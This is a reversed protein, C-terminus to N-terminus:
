GLTALARRTLGVYYTLDAPSPMLERAACGSLRIFAVVIVGAALLYAVSLGAAAGALGLTLGGIAQLAVATLAFLWAIAALLGRRGIRLLHSAILQWVGYAIMGPLLLLLAFTAPAFEDTFIIPVLPSGLALGVAVLVMWLLGHRTVRATM